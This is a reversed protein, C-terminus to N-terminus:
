KVTIVLPLLGIGILVLGQSWNWGGTFFVALGAVVFVILFVLPWVGLKIQRGKM